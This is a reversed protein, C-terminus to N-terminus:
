TRPEASEAAASSNVRRLNAICRYCVDVICVALATVHRTAM